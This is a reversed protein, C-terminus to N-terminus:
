VSVDASSKEVSHLEIKERMVQQIVAIADQVNIQGEIKGRAAYIENKDMVLTALDGHEHSTPDLLGKTTISVAACLAVLALGADMCAMLLGNVCASLVSNDNQLILVSLHIESGSYLNVDILSSFVSTLFICNDKVFRDNKSFVRRDVKSFNAELFDCTVIARDHEAQSRSKPERPGYVCCLVKTLGQEFMCVGDAAAIVPFGIQIRRLEFARRGDQRLGEPSIEAMVICYFFSVLYIYVCCDFLRNMQLYFREVEVKWNLM